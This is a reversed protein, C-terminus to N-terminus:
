RSLHDTLSRGVVITHNISVDVIALRTLFYLPFGDSIPADILPPLRSNSTYRAEIKAEFPAYKTQQSHWDALNEATKPAEGMTIHAWRIDELWFPLADPIPDRAHRVRYFLSISPYLDFRVTRCSTVQYLSTYAELNTDLGIGLELQM